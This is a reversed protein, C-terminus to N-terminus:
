SDQPYHFQYSALEDAPLKGGLYEFLKDVKLKEKARGGEDSLVGPRDIYGNKYALDIIDQDLWFDMFSEDDDTKANVDAGNEILFRVISNKGMRSAYYLASRGGEDTGNIDAEGELLDRLQVELGYSAAIRLGTIPSIYSMHFNRLMVAGDIADFVRLCNTFEAGRNGLFKVSEVNTRLIAIHLPTYGNPGPIDIISGDTDLLMQGVELKDFYAALHLPTWGEADKKNVIAGYRLLTEIVEINGTRIASHLATRGQDNGLNPDMGNQLLLEVVSPFNQAVTYHLATNGLRDLTKLSARDHAIVLKVMEDFGAPASNHLATCEDHDRTLINAGLSVLLEVVALHGVSAALMLPEARDRPRLIHIDAGNDALLKLVHAHGHFAAAHAATYYEGCTANVDVGAKLLIKVCAEQGYRSAGQLACGYDGGRLNPDAGEKLLFLLIDTYGKCAAAQLPTGFRGGVSNIDMGQRVLQRVVDLFGAQAATYLPSPGAHGPTTSVRPKEVWPTDPDFFRIQTQGQSVLFDACLQNLDLLQNKVGSSKMLVPAEVGLLGLLQTLFQIILIILTAQQADIGTPYATAVSSQQSAAKISAQVHHFWFRAAYLTLPTEFIAEEYTPLQDGTGFQQLYVICAQAISHHASLETIYFYSVPSTLIKTSLLYDRVSLHALRLESYEEDGAKITAISFLDSYKNFYGAKGVVLRKESCYKPRPKAEFDIAPVESMEDLRMPRASFCLFRLIHCISSKRSEEVKALTREYTEELTSPLGELTEDLDKNTSCERLRELQCAVWRFNGNGRAILSKAISKRREPDWANLPEGPSELTTEIYSRVDGNNSEELSLTFGKWSRNPLESSLESRSTVLFRVQPIRWQGIITNVLKLFAQKEKCEDFADAVLYCPSFTEILHRLTNTLDHTMPPRTGNQSRSYLNKLPAPISGTSNQAALQQVLSRLLRNHDQSVSQNTQDFYVYAVASSRQHESDAILHDIATSCLVTKGRGAGGSVWLLSCPSDQWRVFEESELFWSGTNESRKDSAIMQSTSFDPPLLWDKIKDLERSGHIRDITDNIKNNQRILVSGTAQQLIENIRSIDDRLKQVGKEQFPYFIRAKISISGRKSQAKTPEIYKELEKSLSAVRERCASFIHAVSKELELKLTSDQMANQLSEFTQILANTDEHLLEIDKQAGQYSMCYQTIGKCLEMGFSVLGTLSAALELGSM